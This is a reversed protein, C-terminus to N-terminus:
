RQPAAAPPTPTTTPAPAPPPPRNCSWTAAEKAYGVRPLLERAALVLGWFLLAISLFHALGSRSRWSSIMTWFGATVVTTVGTLYAALPLGCGHIYPWQTIAYGLTIGLGLRLWTFTRGRRERAPEPPSAAGGTAPVSAGRAPPAAGGGQAMLRDIEALEKDWDRPADGKPM